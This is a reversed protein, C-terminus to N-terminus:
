KVITFRLDLMSNIIKNLKLKVYDNIKVTMTDGVFISEEQNYKLKEESFESIHLDYIHFIEPIFVTITPNRVDIIISDFEKNLMNNENIFRHRKVKEMFFEIKQYKNENENCKKLVNNMEEETYTEDFILRHSIIDPVRRIPSTFHSYLDLNLAWHGEKLNCYKAKTLLRQTMHLNFLKKNKDEILFLDQLSNVDINSSNVRNINNIIVKSSDSDPAPHYRSPYKVKRKHLETAAIINNLIMAEEIMKHSYDSNYLKIDNYYRVEPLKLRKRELKESLEKLSLLDDYLDEDEFKTNGELIDYVEEYTFKKMSKIVSKYIEYSILQGFRNLNIETTVAFKDSDPLLSCLNESLIPPLMRIVYKPLYVSFSREITEKDISNGKKVFYSVDAIHVYLKYGIEHKCISIADDLDRAGIPDITFTRLYRLDKRKKIEKTKDNNYRVLTKESKILVKESFSDPLNYFYKIYETLADNDDFRGFVEVITGYIKDKKVSDIKVKLYDGEKLNDNINSCYILNSKGFKDNYIFVAEKYFHHVMGVVINNKIDTKSIIRAYIVNENDKIIEFEVEDGEFNFNINDKDVKIKKNKFKNSIIEGFGGRKIKLIGKYISM